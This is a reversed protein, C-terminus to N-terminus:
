QNHSIPREDEERERERRGGRRGEEKGKAKWWDLDKEMFGLWMDQMFETRVRKWWASRAILWMCWRDKEEREEGIRLTRKACAFSSWTHTLPKLPLFPLLSVSVARKKFLQKAKELRRKTTM